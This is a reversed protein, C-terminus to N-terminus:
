TPFGEFGEDLPVHFTNLVMSVLVYQGVTFIIDMTQRLSWDTWLANRDM